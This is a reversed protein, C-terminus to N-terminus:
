DAVPPILPLPGSVPALEFRTVRCLEVYARHIHDSAHQAALVDLGTEDGAAIITHPGHTWGCDACYAAGRLHSHKPVDQWRVAGRM